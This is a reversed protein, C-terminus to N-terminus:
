CAKSATCRATHETGTPARSVGCNTQLGAQRLVGHPTLRLTTIPAALRRRTLWGDLQWRTRDAIAQVTLLGDHRRVRSLEQGDTTTAAIELRTCALGHATLKEHLQM